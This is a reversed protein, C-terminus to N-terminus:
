FECRSCQIYPCSSKSTPYMVYQTAAQKQVLFRIVLEATFYVLFFLKAMEFQASVDVCDYDLPGGASKYLNPPQHCTSDVELHIVVANSLVMAMSLLNFAMKDVFTDTELHMKKDEVLQEMSSSGRREDEEGKKKDRATEDQYDESGDDSYSRKRDYDEVQGPLEPPTEEKNNAGKKGGGFIGM